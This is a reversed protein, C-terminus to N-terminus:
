WGLIFRILTRLACQERTIMATAVNNTVYPPDTETAWLSWDHPSNPNDLTAGILSVNPSEIRPVDALLPDLPKLKIEAM